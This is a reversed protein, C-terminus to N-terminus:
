QILFGEEAKIYVNRRQDLNEVDEKFSDYRSQYNSKEIIKKLKDRNEEVIVHNTYFYHGSLRMDTKLKFTSQIGRCWSMLPASYASSMLTYIYGKKANITVRYVGCASFGVYTHEGPKVERQFSGLIDKRYGDLTIKGDVDKLIKKLSTQVIYAKDKDFTITEKKESVNFDAYGLDYYVGDYGHGTITGYATILQSCGTFYTVTAILLLSAIIKNKKTKM